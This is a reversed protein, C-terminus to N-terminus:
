QGSRPDLIAVLDDMRDDFFGGPWQYELQGSEDIGVSEARASEGERIVNFVAVRHPSLAREAIRRQLRLLMAESHTEAIIANGRLQTSEVFLDGLVSQLRPHVHAEPEEILITKEQNAVLQVIIPLLQSVGFGIDQLQVTEGGDVHQLALRGLPGGQEDERTEMSVEFPIDFRDLWLNVASVLEPSLLRRLYHDPGLADM